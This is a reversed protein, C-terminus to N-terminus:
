AHKTNQPIRFHLNIILSFVKDVLELICQARTSASLDDITHLHVRRKPVGSWAKRQHMQARLVAPARDVLLHYRVAARRASQAEINRIISNLTQACLKLRRRHDKEAKREERERKRQERLQKREEKSTPQFSPDHQRWRRGSSEGFGGDGGAGGVVQQRYGPHVEVAASM